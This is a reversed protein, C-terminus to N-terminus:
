ECGGLCGQISPCLHSFAISRDLLRKSVSFAGQFFDRDVDTALRETAYKEKKKPKQCKEKTKPRKRFLPPAIMPRKSEDVKGNWYPMCVSAAVKGGAYLRPANVEFCTVLATGVVMAQGSCVTLRSGLSEFQQERRYTTGM